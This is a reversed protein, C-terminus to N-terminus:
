QFLLKLLTQMAHPRFLILTHRRTASLRFGGRQAWRYSLLLPLHSNLTKQLLFSETHECKSSMFLRLGAPQPPSSPFSSSFVVAPRHPRCTAPWVGCLSGVGAAKTQAALCTWRPAHCTLKTAKIMKKKLEASWGLGSQDLFYDFYYVQYIWTNIKCIPELHFM